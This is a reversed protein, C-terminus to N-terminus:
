NKLALEKVRSFAFWFSAFGGLAMAVLGESNVLKQIEDFLSWTQSMLYLGSVGGFVNLAVDTVEILQLASKSKRHRRILLIILLSLITLIIWVAYLQKQTM